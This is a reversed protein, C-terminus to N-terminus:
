LFYMVKVAANKRYSIIIPQIHLQFVPVPLSFQYTSPFKLRSLDYTLNRPSRLRFKNSALFNIQTLKSQSLIM